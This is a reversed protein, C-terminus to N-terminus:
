CWRDVIDSLLNIKLYYLSYFVFGWIIGILLIIISNNINLILDISFVFYVAVFLIITTTLLSSSLIKDILSIDINIYVKDKKM